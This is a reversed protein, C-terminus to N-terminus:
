GKLMKHIDELIPKLEYEFLDGILIFDENELAEVIENLKENMVQLTIEQHHINKTHMMAESVWQIGDAIPAILECAKRDEGEHFYKVAKEIKNILNVMNEKVNQSTEFQEDM